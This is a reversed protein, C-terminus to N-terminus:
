AITESGSFEPAGAQAAHTAPPESWLYLVFAAGGDPANEVSIRGGYREIIGLSVWLGLGNGGTKKTTFFPNFINEIIERPIGPGTDSVTITAGQAVGHEIWNATRLTLTGGQPMAQLANVMLNILVQQLENGNLNVPLTAAYDEIVRINSKRMQHGVLVLSDQVIQRTDVSQVYGAFEAPRAFQLLKTVILRIRQVQERILRIEERVPEAADGLVEALMEINGQIVAIPNNVEHAVGATLQGVAALKESTVLKRQTSRLHEMAEELERTRQAVRQDLEQGWERLALTQAHLRDLLRDLHDSLRGLEDTSEIKGVRAAENGSEVESMTAHMREVPQFIGRAWRLSVLTAAGMTLVFVAIVAGLALQKVHRFPKELYGVYLMGVRNGRSDTVPEYASVYWDNV